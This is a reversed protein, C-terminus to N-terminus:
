YRQMRRLRRTPADGAAAASRMTDASARRLHPAVADVPILNRLVTRPARRHRCHLLNRRRRAYLAADARRMADRPTAVSRQADRRVTHADDRVAACRARRTRRVAARNRRAAPARAACNRPPAIDLYDPWIARAPQARMSARARLPAACPYNDTAASRVAACPLPAFAAAATVSQPRVIIIRTRRAVTACRAAARARRACASRLRRRLPM